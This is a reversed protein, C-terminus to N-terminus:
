SIEEVKRKEGTKTGVMKLLVSKGTYEKSEHASLSFKWPFHSKPWIYIDHLM